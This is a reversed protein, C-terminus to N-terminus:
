PQAADLAGALRRDLRDDGRARRAARKAIEEIEAPADVLARDVPAGHFRQHAGAREVRDLRAAGRQQRRDADRELGGLARRGVRRLDRQEAFLRRVVRGDAEDGRAVPGVGLPQLVLFGRDAEVQGPMREVAVGGLQRRDHARRERVQRGRLSRTSTAPM